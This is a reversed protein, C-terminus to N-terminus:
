RAKRAPWNKLLSAVVGTNSGLDLCTDFGLQKFERFYVKRVFFERLFAYSNGVTSNMSDVDVALDHGLLFFRVTGHMDHDASYFKRERLVTPAHRLVGGYWRLAQSKPMASWTALADDALRKLQHAM